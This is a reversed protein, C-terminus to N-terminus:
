IGFYGDGPKKKKDAKNKCEICRISKGDMVFESVPKTKRCVACKKKEM